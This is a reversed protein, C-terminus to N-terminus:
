RRYYDGPEPKGLWSRSGDYFRLRKPETSNTNILKRARAKRFAARSVFLSITENKGFTLPIYKGFTEARRRRGEVFVKRGNWPNLVKIAGGALGKITVYEVAGKRMSSSVLFAGQARFNRFDADWRKPAAPFLRLVGNHSQMLLENIIMLFISSDEFCSFIHEKAEINETCENMQNSMPEALKMRESGDRLTIDPINKLNAESLKSDAIVVANHCFLGNSKMFLRLFEQYLLRLPEKVLGMRLGQMIQFFPLWGFVFHHGKTQAYSAMTERIYVSWFTKKAAELVEKPSDVDFEGAPFFPYLGGTQSIYHDAPVTDGEAFVGDDMPYEPYHSLLRQWRRRDAADIGFLESAMIATKLNVKLLSLTHTPNGIDLYPIEPPESPYLRYKGTGEDFTMYDAFFNCVEKIFPYIKKKLLKRDKSYEWMWCYILGHYPGACHNISGGGQSGDIGCSVPFNMGRCGYIERTDRKAQPIMANFTDLFPEALELHNASFFPMPVMQSNQDNTYYGSWDLKQASDIGRGFALGLLAPVPAKRHQSAQMYLSTYWLQELTKDSITMFSKKWFADWWKVHQRYLSSFGQNAASRVLKLADALPTKSEKSTVVSAFFEFDGWPQVLARDGECWAPTTLPIKPWYKKRRTKKLYDAYAFRRLQKAKMAIVYYFGDNFTMKMYAVDGDAAFVPPAYATDNPRMLEITASPEVIASVDRVKICLINKNAHVFTQMRPHSLHRDMATHLIGDYISLRNGIKYPGQWSDHRGFRLRLHAGTKPASQKPAPRPVTPKPDTFHPGIKEKGEALMKLVEAHKLLNPHETEYDWIDIKNILFEPFHPAFFMAGVDGNGCFLCDSWRKPATKYVLDHNALYQKMDVEV